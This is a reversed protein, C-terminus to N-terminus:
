FKMQKEDLENWCISFFKLVPWTETDDKRSFFFIIELSIINWLFFFCFLKSKAMEQLIKWYIWHYQLFKRWSVIYLFKRICSFLREFVMEKLTNACRFNSGRAAFERWFNIGGECFPFNFFAYPFPIVFGISSIERPDFPAHACTHRHVYVWRHPRSLCADLWALRILPARHGRVTWSRTVGVSRRVSASQPASFRQVLARLERPSRGHRHCTRRKETAEKWRSSGNLIEGQDIPRPLSHFLVFHVPSVRERTSSRRSVNPIKYNSRFKTIYYLIIFKTICHPSHILSKKQKRSKFHIFHFLYPFPSISQRYFILIFVFSLKYLFFYM